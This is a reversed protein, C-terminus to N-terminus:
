AVYRDPCPVFVVLAPTSHAHACPHFVPHHRKFYRSAHNFQNHLPIPEFFSHLSLRSTLQIDRSRARYFSAPGILSPPQLTSEMTQLDVKHVTAPVRRNPLVIHLFLFIASLAVSNYITAKYENLCGGKTSESVSRFSHLCRRLTSVTTVTISPM